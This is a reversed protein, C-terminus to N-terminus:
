ILNASIYGGTQKTAFGFSTDLASKWATVYKKFIRQEPHVIMVFPCFVLMTYRWLLTKKGRFVKVHNSFRSRQGNKKNDECLMLM